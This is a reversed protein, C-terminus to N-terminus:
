CLDRSQIAAHLCNTRGGSTAYNLSINADGESVATVMFFVSNASITTAGITVVASDSAVVASAITEVGLWAADTEFEYVDVKGVKAPRQFRLM